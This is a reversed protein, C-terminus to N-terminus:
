SPREVPGAQFGADCCIRLVAIDKIANYGVVEATRMSGHVHVSVFSEGEIVHFNTVITASGSNDVDVIVGSGTGSNTTVKVVSPRVREVVDEM